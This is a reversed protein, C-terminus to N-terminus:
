CKRGRNLLLATDWWRTLQPKSSIPPQTATSIAASKTSWANRCGTSVGSSATTTTEMKSQTQEIYNSNRSNTIKLQFILIKYVARRRNILQNVATATWSSPSGLTWTKKTLVAKRSSLVWSFAHITWRPAQIKKMKWTCVTSTTLRNLTKQFILLRLFTRRRLHARKRKVKTTSPRRPVM